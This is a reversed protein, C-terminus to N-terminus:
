VGGGGCGPMGKRSSTCVLERSQCNILALNPQVVRATFKWDRTVHQTAPIGVWNGWEQPSGTHSEHGPESRRSLMLM